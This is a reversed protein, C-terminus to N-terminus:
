VRCWHRSVTSPSADTVLHDVKLVDKLRQLLRLYPGTKGHWRAFFTTDSLRPSSFKAIPSTIKTRLKGSLCTSNKPSIWIVSPNYDIRSILFPKPSTSIVQPSTCALKGLHCATFVSKRQVKCTPLNEVWRGIILWKGIWQWSWVSKWSHTFWVTHGPSDYEEMGRCQFKVPHSISFYWMRLM